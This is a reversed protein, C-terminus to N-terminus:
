MLGSPKVLWVIRTHNMLGINSTRTNRGKNRGTIKGSSRHIVLTTLTTTVVTILTTSSKSAQNAELGRGMNIPLKEKAEMQYVVRRANKGEMALSEVFIVFTPYDRMSSSFGDTTWMKLNKCIQTRRTETTWLVISTPLSIADLAITFGM